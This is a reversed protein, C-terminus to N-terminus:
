FSRRLSIGGINAGPAEPAFFWASKPKAAKPETLILVTATGVAVIGTVLSVTTITSYARLKNNLKNVKQTDKYSLKDDGCDHDSGCLDLLDGDTRRQLIYFVGANVLAAAGVGGIIYPVLRSHKAPEAPALQGSDTRAVSANEPEASKVLTITVKEVDKEAIDITSSYPEYGPAKASIAHPGPDLPVEVGISSSGLSVGDLEINAAKAGEGREIVIKPIRGRLANARDEVEKQFEPGLAEAETLALEYGGLATVLKGLKEECTAIHYRVQPTMRVQAVERFAQLASAYNGAQELETAQMFKGRAKSLDEDEPNGALVSGSVTFVLAIALWGVRTSPSSRM